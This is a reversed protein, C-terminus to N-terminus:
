FIAAFFVLALFQNIAVFIVNEEGFTIVAKYEFVAFGVVSVVLNLCAIWIHKPNTLGALFVLVLTALISLYVPLDINEQFFPLSLVMM